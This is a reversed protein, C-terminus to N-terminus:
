IDTIRCGIDGIQISYSNFLSINFISHKLRPFFVISLGKLGRMKIKIPNLIVLFLEQLPTRWLLKKTKRIKWFPIPASFLPIYLSNDAYPSVTVNFMAKIDERAPYKVYHGLLDLIVYDDMHIDNCALRSNIDNAFDLIGEEMRTHIKKRMQECVSINKKYVPKQKYMTIIPNESASFILEIIDCKKNQSLIDRLSGKYYDSHRMKNLISRGPITMMYFGHTKVGSEKEILKQGSLQGSITDVVGVIKDEGVINKIYETYGTNKKEQASLKKFKDINNEIFQLPSLNGTNQKFYECVIQAQESLKPDYDLNATYNLIRPAYVYNTKIDTANFINFVKQAIYGDRAVFLINKINEENAINYIWRTYSYVVAGAIDYGFNYWYDNSVKKQSILSTLISVFIHNKYVKYFNKFRKHASNLFNDIVKVYLYSTLKHKRAQEFDSKKNDGIHLIQAPTIKLDDIIYDYMDGRDKRKNIQNSLYLKKYKTIGNSKLVSKIFDLPLYMDSAIIVTKRKEIAYDYIKKIEPNIKLGAKELNLELDKLEAYEVPIVSYIDDITAEKQKGFKNYFVNEANQRATAFGNKKTIQEIYVFLDEPKVFPRLLLTDFIDFSVIQKTDIIKYINSM